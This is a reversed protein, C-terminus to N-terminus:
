RRSGGAVKQERRSGEAGEQWLEWQKHKHGDTDNVDNNNKNHNGNNNGNSIVVNGGCM